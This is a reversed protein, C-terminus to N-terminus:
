EQSVNESEPFKNKRQHERMKKEMDTETEFEIIDKSASEMYSSPITETKLTTQNILFHLFKIINTHIVPLNELAHLYEKYNERYINSKRYDTDKILNHFHNIYYVKKSFRILIKKLSEYDKKYAEKIKNEGVVVRLLEIAQYLHSYQLGNGLCAYSSLHRFILQKMTPSIEILKQKEETMKTNKM